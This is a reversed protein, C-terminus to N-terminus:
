FRLDAGLVANTGPENQGSGHVRYDRDTINEIGAFLKFGPLPEVGARLAYVAYGPTGGPPIRQADSRDEPSLRDQRDALTVTGEVFVARRKSDWRLGVISLAPQIRSIPRRREASGVFTDAEGELWAFSGFATLDGSLGQLFRWSAGVEVGHVFGDGVNDKTVEPLGDITDGTPFRQIMDDIVTYHYAAHAEAGWEISRAKTGAEFSVYKEPDLDPAPTEVEGSRAVDFRTLDSLNPARFGQSVGGFLNWGEVAHFLARLSGVASHWDEDVDGLVTADAPDPDVEDAEARAYNYRGGLTLELRDEVVEVRDQVYAGFLDYSAEDAVPGRESRSRLTGDSSMVRSRSDVEDHYEEVGYTLTGIPTPSELQVWAGTTGDEFGQQTRRGSSVVRTEDEEQLHFSLSASVRSLWEAVDKRHVQVYGLTRVQDLERKRDTGAATGHFSESFVTSHTRPADEQGVRQFAVVLDTDPAIRYVAKADGDLEDYDTRDLHGTHRGGGIDGFDKWSVGGILGLKGDLAVSTEARAVHSDEGSALRYYLRRAWYVGGLWDGFPPDGVEPDRSQTIANVTGGVADSGYLVSSPGKVVELRELTLPDVTNWYQNPGERLVANNLRIGDILLLTRFGTFGRLFPSGQGNSTKQVMVGPTERLSEPLTRAAREGALRGGDLTQTTYPVDFPDAEVATATVIIEDLRRGEAAPEAPPQAPLQTPPAAEEAGLRSSCVVFLAVAAKRM